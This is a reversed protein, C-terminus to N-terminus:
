GAGGEGPEWTPTGECFAPFRRQGCGWLGHLPSPDSRPQTTEHSTITNTMRCLHPLGVARTSRRRGQDPSPSTGPHNPKKWGGQENSQGGNKGRNWNGPRTVAGPQDDNPTRQFGPPPFGLCNNSQGVPLLPKLTSRLMRPPDLDSPRHGTSWPLRGPAWRSYCRVWLAARSRRARPTGKHGTDQKRGGESGNGTRKCSMLVAQRKGRARVGTQGQEAEDM